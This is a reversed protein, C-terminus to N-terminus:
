SFTLARNCLMSDSYPNSKLIASCLPLSLIVHIRRRMHCM